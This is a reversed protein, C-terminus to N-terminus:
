EHRDIPLPILGQAPPEAAKKLLCRVFRLRVHHVLEAGGRPADFSQQFRETRIGVLVLSPQQLPKRAQAPAGPSHAVHIDLHRQQAAELDAAVGRALLAEHLHEGLQAALPFLFQSGREVLIRYAVHSAPQLLRSLLQVM